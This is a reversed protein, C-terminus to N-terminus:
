DSSGDGAASDGAGPAFYFTQGGIVHATEGPNAAVTPNYVQGGMSQETTAQAPAPQAGSSYTPAAAFASGAALTLAAAAAILKMNTM